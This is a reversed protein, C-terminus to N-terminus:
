QAQTLDLYASQGFYSDAGEQRRRWATTGSDSLGFLILSASSVAREVLTLLQKAGSFKGVDENQLFEKMRNLIYMDEKELFDEDSVM